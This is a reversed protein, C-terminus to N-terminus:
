KSTEEDLHIMIAEDLDEKGRTVAEDNLTLLRGSAASYIAPNKFHLDKTKSITKRMRKLAEQYLILQLRHNELLRKEPDSLPHTDLSKGSTQQLPHGAEPHTENFGNIAGTTKADIVQVYLDGDEDELILVLDIRGEFIAESYDVRSKKKKGRPTWSYRFFDQHNMEHRYWFPLETRLGIVKMGNVLHGNALTGLAGERVLRGLVLLRRKIETLNQRDKISFESLIEDIIEESTLGDENSILWNKNLTSPFVAPNPLGIEILRHFMEGFITPEIDLYPGGHVFESNSEKHLDHTALYIRQRTEKVSTVPKTEKNSFEGLRQIQKKIEPVIEHKEFCDMHHYLHIGDLQADM